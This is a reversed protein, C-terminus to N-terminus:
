NSNSLGLKKDCVESERHRSNLKRDSPVSEEVISRVEEWEARIM